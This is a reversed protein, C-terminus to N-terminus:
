HWECGFCGVIKTNDENVMRFAIATVDHKFTKAVSILAPEPIDDIDLCLVLDANDCAHQPNFYIEFDMDIQSAIGRKWDDFYPCKYVSTWVSLKM